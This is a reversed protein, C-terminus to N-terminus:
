ATEVVNYESMMRVLGLLNSMQSVTCTSKGVSKPCM